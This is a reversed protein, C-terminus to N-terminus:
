NLHLRGRAGKSAQNRNRTRGVCSALRDIIGDLHDHNVVLVSVGEADPVDLRPVSVVAATTVALEVDGGEGGLRCTVLPSKTVVVALGFAPVIPVSSEDHGAWAPSDRFEAVLANSAQQTAQYAHDVGNGGQPSRKEAVAYASILPRTLKALREEITECRACGDQTHSTPEWTAINAGSNTFLVWPATNSKCEIFARISHPDANGTSGIFTCVIDIERGKDTEPDIYHAGQTIMGGRAAFRRAVDMELVYGGKELWARVDEILKSEDAVASM